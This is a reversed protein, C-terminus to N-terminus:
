FTYLFVTKEALIYLRNNSLIVQQINDLSPLAIERTQLDVIQMEMLKNNELYIIKDGALQISKINILPIIKSFTGFADFVIIGNNSDVGLVYKNNAQLQNIQIPKGTLRAINGSLAQIEITSSIRVLESNLEDFAWITREGTGVIATFQRDPINSLNLESLLSITNDFLLLRQYDSYYLLVRFPDSVDLDSIRGSYKPYFAGQLDGQENLKFFSNGSSWIGYISGLKDVRIFDAQIPLSAKLTQAQATINCVSLLFVILLFRSYTHKNKM